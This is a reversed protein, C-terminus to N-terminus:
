AVMFAGWPTRCKRSHTPKNEAAVAKISRAARPSTRLTGNVKRIRHSRYLKGRNFSVEALEQPHVLLLTALEEASGVDFLKV